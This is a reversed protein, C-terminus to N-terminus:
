MYRANIYMGAFAGVVLCVIGFGVFYAPEIIWMGENTPPELTIETVINSEGTGLSDKDLVRFDYPTLSELDSVRYNTTGISSITDVSTWDLTGGIRYQVVYNVFFLDNSKSWELTVSHATTEQTRVILEPTSAANVNVTILPVVMMFLVM